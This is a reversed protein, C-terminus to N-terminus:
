DGEQFLKILFRPFQAYLFFMYARLHSLFFLFSTLMLPSSESKEGLHLKPEILSTIVHMATTKHNKLTPRVTTNSLVIQGNLSNSDKVKSRIM